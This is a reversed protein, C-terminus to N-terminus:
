QNYGVATVTAHGIFIRLTDPAGFSLDYHLVLASGRTWRGPM